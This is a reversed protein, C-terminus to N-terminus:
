NQFLVFYAIPLTMAHSLQPLYHEHKQEDPVCPKSHKVFSRTPTKHYVAFHAAHVSLYERVM